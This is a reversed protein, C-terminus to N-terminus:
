AKNEEKQGIKRETGNKLRQLNGWHRWIAILALAIAWVGAPWLGKFVSVLIAYSIVLVMSGLSIYRTLVITLIDLLVAPIGLVPFAFVFVGTCCAIGKGGKFGFDLPWNHGIIAFFGAAMAGNQGAILRGLLVAGIAKACDFIFTITGANMGYIRLMNSAGPNKSGHRRIDSGLLHSYLIGASVSGLLYGIVACLLLSPLQEM